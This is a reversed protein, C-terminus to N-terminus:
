ASPRPEPQVAASLAGLASVLGSLGALIVILGLQIAALVAAILQPEKFKKMFVATLGYSCGAYIAGAVLLAWIWPVAPQFPAGWLGSVISAVAAALASTRM